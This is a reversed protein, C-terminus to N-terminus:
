DGEQQWWTCTCVVVTVSARRGKVRGHGNKQKECPLFDGGENMKKKKKVVGDLQEIFHGKSFIEFKEMIKIAPDNL